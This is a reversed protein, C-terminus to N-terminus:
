SKRNRKPAPPVAPGPVDAPAVPALIPAPVPELFFPSGPPDADFLMAVSGLHFTQGSKLVAEEIRARNVFTGNTSGLDRLLVRDGEVVIQCHSGSVKDDAIEIDNDPNRGISNVGPKLAAEWQSPSGISVILRPM